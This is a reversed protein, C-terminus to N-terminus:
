LGFDFNIFQIRVEETALLDYVTKVFLWSLFVIALGVLAHVITDRAQTAKKKDGAAMIYKIGGWIVYLMSLVPVVQYTWQMVRGVAQQFTENQVFDFMM